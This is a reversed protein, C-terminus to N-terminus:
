RRKNIRLWTNLKRQCYFCLSILNDPHINKKNGNINHILLKKNGQIRCCLQCVHKDRRRIGKELEKKNKIVPLTNLFTEYFLKSM